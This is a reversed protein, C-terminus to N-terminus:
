WPDHWNMASEWFCPDTRMRSSEHLFTINHSLIDEYLKESNAVRDLRLPFFEAKMAVNKYYRLQLHSRAVRACQAEDAALAECAGFWAEAQALDFVNLSLIADYPAGINYFDMRRDTILGIYAKINEYGAGYYYYLFEDVTKDFDLYPDWMLRAILYARLEGFEGSLSQNNGQMFYGQAGNEYYMQANPQLTHLDPFPTLYHRFATGYDWLILNEAIESWTKVDECFQPNGERYPVSHNNGISCLQVVVNDAPKISQPPRETHQYAFTHILVGPKLTEAYAAVKNVFTLLSGAPSGEALDIAACDPCRCYTGGDNQSVSFLNASPYEDIWKAIWQKTLALVEPNSYCVQIDARKGNEDLMFYEPNSEFYQEAPVFFRFTHGADLGGFLVLKTDSEDMSGHGPAMTANLHLKSRLRTDNAARWSTHRFFFAPAGNVAIDAPLAVTRQQPVHEVQAAFFRCGLFDRLFDYVGYLTGRTEGGAILLTEGLVAITYSDEDAVPRTIQADAARNTKGVLIEKPQAAASDDALPLTVGSIQKLYEQLETAALKETATAGAGYVIAYDSAGNEILTLMPTNEAYVPLTNPAESAAPLGEYEPVLSPFLTAFGSSITILVSLLFACIKEALM